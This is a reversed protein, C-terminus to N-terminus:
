PKEVFILMTGTIHDRILEAVLKDPTIGILEARQKLDRLKRESLSITLQKM